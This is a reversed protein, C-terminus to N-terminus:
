FVMNESVSESADDTKIKVTYDGIEDTVKYVHIYYKDPEDIYIEKSGQDFIKEGYIYEEFNGEKFLVWNIPKDGKNVVDFSITGAQKVDISFIDQNDRGGMSAEITTDLNSIENATDYTNNEEIEMFNDKKDEKDALISGKIKFNYLSDDRTSKYITLNYRGSKEINVNELASEYITGCGIRADKDSEHSLVWFMKDKSLNNFVIDIEGTEVADFYYVDVLDRGGFKGNIKVYSAPIETANEPINNEETEEIEGNNLEQVEIKKIISAKGRRDDIIKLTVTYQGPIKYKHSPNAEESTEGDGFDWEYAVIRGDEDLSATSDFDIITDEVIRDPCEFVAIPLINPIFNKDGQKGHFEIDYEVNNSSNVRYNKFYCTLTKYGEWNNNEAIQNLMSNAKKDMAQWDSYKDVSKDGIFSGKVTFTDFFQSSDEEVKIDILGTSEKIDKEISEIDKYEYENLYDDSVLPTTLDDYSDTLDQMYEQYDNNLEDNNSLLEIYKDYGKVDSNKIYENLNVFTEFSNGYIYSDFMFAYSYFEFSGYRSHLTKSVSYRGSPEQPLGRIMSKRPLVSSTRTSGAFFEAGGESFWTLRDKKHMETQNFLGPVIYRAQLYHTFEHRFLEELSYISEQPTREYTFFTGINEIYIGGNDTSYGYLKSNVKYESPSNYIVITLIDDANGPELAEDSGSVRFFQAKVEKSAWYLRKIKEETVKNGAKIIMKGNDFTYTNPLYHDIGNKKVKNYDVTKDNYDKSGYNDSIGKAADLYPESLDPYINMADTLIKLNVRSDTHFRGYEAIQYICNNVLWTNNEDIDELLAIKKFSNIYDDINGYWETNKIDRELRVDRKIAKLIGNMLEHLATTKSRDTIYDNVNNNYQNIVKASNNVLEPTCSTNSILKGLAVIIENQVSTGLGFYENAQIALMASICDNDFNEENLYKLDDKANYYAVYTGSRLVEVLTRIGKMDSATYSAGKEKLADIVAQVREKDKYFEHIDENFEFLEPMDSWKIKELVEILEKHSLTNLYSMYYKDENEKTATNENNSAYVGKMPYMLMFIALFLVVVRKNVYNM